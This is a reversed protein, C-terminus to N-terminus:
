IGNVNKNLTLKKKQLIIKVECEDTENDRCVWEIKQVYFGDKCVEDITENLERNTSFTVYLIKFDM